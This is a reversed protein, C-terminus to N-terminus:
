AGFRFEDVLQFYVSFGEVLSLKVFDLSGSDQGGYVAAHPAIKRRTEGEGCVVSDGGGCSM